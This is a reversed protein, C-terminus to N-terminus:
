NMLMVTMSKEQEHRWTIRTKAQMHNEGCQIM